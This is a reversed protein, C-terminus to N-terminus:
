EQVLTYSLTPGMQLTIGYFVINAKIKGTQEENHWLKTLNYKLVAIFDPLYDRSKATFTLLRRSKHRVQRLFHVFVHKALVLHPPAYFSLMKRKYQCQVTKQLNSYM